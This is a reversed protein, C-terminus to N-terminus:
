HKQKGERDWVWKRTNAFVDPSFHAKEGKWRVVQAQLRSMGKMKAEPDSSM